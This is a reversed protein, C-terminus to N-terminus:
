LYKILAVKKSNIPVPLVYYLQNRWIIYSAQYQIDSMPGLADPSLISLADVVLEKPAYVDYDKM